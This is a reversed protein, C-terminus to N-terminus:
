LVINKQIICGIRFQSQYRCCVFASTNSTCLLPCTIRDPKRHFHLWCLFYKSIAGSKLRKIVQLNTPPTLFFTGNKSASKTPMCHSALSRQLICFVIYLLQTANKKRNAEVDWSGWEGGGRYMLLFCWCYSDWLYQKTLSPPVMWFPKSGTLTDMNSHFYTPCLNRLYCM